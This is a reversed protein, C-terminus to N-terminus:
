KKIYSVASLVMFPWIICGVLIVALIAISKAFIFKKNSINPFNDQKIKELGPDIKKRIIIICLISIIESYIIYDYITM